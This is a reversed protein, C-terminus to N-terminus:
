QTVAAPAGPAPSAQRLSELWAANDEESIFKRRGIRIIRPGTGQNIHHELTRRCIRNKRAAEDITLLKM